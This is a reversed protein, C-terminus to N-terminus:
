TLALCFYQWSGELDPQGDLYKALAYAFLTALREQALFERNATSCWGTCSGLRGQDGVPTMWDTLLMKTPLDRAAALRQLTAVVKQRATRRQARHSTLLASTQTPGHIGTLPPLSFATQALATRIALPLLQRVPQGIHRRAESLGLGFVQQAQAEEWRRELLDHLQACTVIGHARLHHVTTDPLGAHEIGAGPSHDRRTM